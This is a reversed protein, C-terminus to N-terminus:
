RTCGGGADGPVRRPGSPVAGRPRVPIATSASTSRRPRRRATPPFLEWSARAQRATVGAAEGIAAWSVGRERVIDVVAAVVPHLLVDTGAPLSIAVVDALVLAPLEAFLHHRWEAWAGSRNTEGTVAAPPHGTRSPFAKRMYVSPSRWGCTCAAKWGIVKSADAIDTADIVVSRDALISAPFGEHRYAPRYGTDHIWGM